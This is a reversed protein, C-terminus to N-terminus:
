HIVPERQKNLLMIYGDYFKLFYLHHDIGVLHKGEEDFFCNDALLENGLGIPNTQETKKEVIENSPLKVEITKRNGAITVVKVIENEVEVYNGVRLEHTNM